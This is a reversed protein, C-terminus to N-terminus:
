PTTEGSRKARPRRSRSAFTVDPATQRAFRAQHLTKDLEFEQASQGIM